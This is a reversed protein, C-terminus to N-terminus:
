KRKKGDKSEALSITILMVLLVPILIMIVIPYFQVATQGILTLIYTIGTFLVSLVFLGAISVFTARCISGKTLKLKFVCALLASIGVVIGYLVWISIFSGFLFGIHIGPTPQVELLMKLTPYYIGWSFLTALLSFILMPKLGYGNGQKLYTILKQM